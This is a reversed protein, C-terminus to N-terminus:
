KLTELFIFKGIGGKKRLFPIIRIRRGVLSSLFGTNDCTKCVYMKLCPYYTRIFISLKLTVFVLLRDRFDLNKSLSKTSM